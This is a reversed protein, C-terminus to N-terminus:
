KPLVDYNYSNGNQIHIPLIEGRTSTPTSDLLPRIGVSIHISGALGADRKEFDGGDICHARKPARRACNM